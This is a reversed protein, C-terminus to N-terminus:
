SRSVGKLEVGVVGRTSGRGEAASRDLDVVRVRLPADDERVADRERGPGDDSRVVDDVHRRQRARRRPHRHPHHLAPLRKFLM